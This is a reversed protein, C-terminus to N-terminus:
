YFTTRIVPQFLEKEKACIPDFQCKECEPETMEPCRKRSNFFFWDVAGMSRGSRASVQEMALYAPYRVAWEEDPALLQRGKLKKHLERDLVKVLGTRLCTRMAHYDIVPTVWDDEKLSLFMEPRQNLILALLGSKKRLPDEKYGGIHDLMTFFTKLPRTSANAQRVIEQPTLDNALMDAGYHRAQALHLELAPMPDRSDDARFLDLMEDLSCSAQREPTFFGPDTNLARMYGQWLYDSGKLQMGDITGILPQDYRGGATTWFSFQQLTAVFFWDLVLPHGVPPLVTGTFDFPTVEPLGAILDAVKDTQVKSVEARLDMPPEPAAESWFLAAPGPHEIMEAALATAARAAMVPHEGNGLHTLAAGCFSDGAGTPDLVESSVAQVETAYTGQIVRVGREGMTVFLVKGPQTCASDLSGCVVEAERQNMFYYDSMELVARIGEPDEEANFLGTGASIKKAGRERCASVFARQRVSDGLPTVHVIDYISLDVPITAPTLKAEAGISIKLYETKEGEYSIEFQPLEEPPFAPGLWQTLRDVVPQLREPIPDPCPSLLSVQAGSRKAAMATYMGAGGASEVTQGAFHYVDSSAGGIVLIHTM